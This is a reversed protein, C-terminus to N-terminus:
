NPIEMKELFSLKVKDYKKFEAEAEKLAIKVKAETEAIEPISNDKIKYIKNQKIFDDVTVVVHYKEKNVPGSETQCLLVKSKQFAVIKYDNNILFNVTKLLKKWNSTNVNREIWIPKKNNTNNNKDIYNQVVDKIVKQTIKMKEQERDFSFSFTKGDLVFEIDKYHDKIFSNISTYKELKMITKFVDFAVKADDDSKHFTIDNTQVRLTDAIDELSKSNSKNFRKTFYAQIDFYSYSFNTLNYKECAVSLFRADNRHSFGLVLTNEDLLDAITKYNGEFNKRRYFVEEPYALTMRRGPNRRSELEWVYTSFPEEPNILIDKKEIINCDDDVLVYGFSCIHIGDAAEIDFSLFKNFKEM